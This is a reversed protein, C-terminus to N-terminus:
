RPARLPDRASVLVEVLERAGRHRLVIVVGGGPAPTSVYGPADTDSREALPWGGAVVASPPRALRLTETSDDDFTTWAVRGRSYSVHTVVSTSRLIHDEGPPAWGPVAGMAVLFHRIYDGYGDSFWWGENPDEGVAVTGDTGCMYTAWNLSREARERASADGTKEAWLALTAGFRATHSGMKAMDAIQESLVVAGFQRGWERDTDVGFTREVWATLGAVHDRWAPDEGPHAMLWRAVRMPIYQNPNSSPDSQIEIDEFYGSWAGSTMPVRELWGLVDDRTRRYAGTDGLGLRALEDFLTLAGVVNASYEERAVNTDAHVRFPWPSRVADGPRAHKVLADACAIAAQKYRAAGIAEFAQMYAFGLEGVKDPEIVGVGDGRGCFDCWGDDAGGYETAGPDASAYPVRAWDWDAPTSGHEIQHDLAKCALDLAARDGSFAYWLVASDTLMAYLGAPNHPWNVGAHTEPDFRSHALWTELGNDQVPFRTELARWAREAVSAYPSEESVWSLLRGSPDLKVAHGGLTARVGPVVRSCSQLWGALAIAVVGSATAFSALSPHV